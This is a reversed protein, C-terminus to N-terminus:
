VDGLMAWSVHSCPSRLCTKRCRTGCRRTTWAPAGLWTLRGSKHPSCASSGSSSRRQAPAPRWAAGCACHAAAASWGGEPAQRCGSSGAAEAAACWPAALQWSTNGLPWADEWHPWSPSQSLLRPLTSAPASIASGIDRLQSPLSDKPAELGPTAEWGSRAALEDGEHLGSPACGWLRTRGLEVHRCARRM